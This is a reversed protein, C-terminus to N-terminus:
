CSDIGLVVKFFSKEDFWLYKNTAVKAKPQVLVPFKM